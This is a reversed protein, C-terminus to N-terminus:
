NEYDVNIKYEIGLKELGNLYEQITNPFNNSFNDIEDEDLDEHDVDLIKFGEFNIQKKVISVLLSHVNISHGQNFLVGGIYVASWDDWYILIISKSFDINSDLMENLKKIKM